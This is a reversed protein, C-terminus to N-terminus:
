NQESWWQFDAEAHYDPAFFAHLYERESELEQSGHVVAAFDGSAWIAFLSGIQDAVARSLKAYPRASQERATVLRRERQLM